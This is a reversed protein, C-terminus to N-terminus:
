SAVIGAPYSEETLCYPHFNQDDSSLQEVPWIDIYKVAVQKGTAPIGMLEGQHTGHM